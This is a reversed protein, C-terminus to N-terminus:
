DGVINSQEVNRLSESYNCESEGLSSSVSDGLGLAAAESEVLESLNGGVTLAYQQQSAGSVTLGFPIETKAGTLLSRM